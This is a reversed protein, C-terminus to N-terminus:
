LYDDSDELDRQGCRVESLTAKHVRVQLTITKAIFVCEVRIAVKPMCHKNLFKTPDIRKSDSNSEIDNREYFKTIFQKDCKSYMVKPYMNPRDVSGYVCPKPEPNCAIHIQEIISFIGRALHQGTETTFFLLSLILTTNPIKKFVLPFVLIPLLLLPDLPITRIGFM